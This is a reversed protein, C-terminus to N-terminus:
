AGVTELAGCASVVAGPEVFYLRENFERQKGINLSAMPRLYGMVLTLTGTEDSRPDALLQYACASSECAVRGTRGHRHEANPAM